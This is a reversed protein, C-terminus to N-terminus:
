FRIMRGLPGKMDIIEEIDYIPIPFYPIGYAYATLEYLQFYIVLSKDTIYFDQNPNLGSYEGVVQIKRQNIQRQVIESLVDIYNTREKFLDKLKYSKGSEMDVTLSKIKTLGEDEGIYASNIISISLMNRQNNKIEYYSLMEKVTNDYYGQQKMVLNVIEFLKFNIKKQGVTKINALVPYYIKINPQQKFLYSGINVPFAYNDIKKM